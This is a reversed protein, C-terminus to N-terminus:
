RWEFFGIEDLDKKLDGLQEPTLNQMPLRAPGVNMGSLCMTSKNISIFDVGTSSSHKRMTRIFAHSRFQEQKCKAINGKAYEAIIRNYLKGAYNFTSGIFSTTDFTLAPLLQEDVGYLMSYKGGGYVLCRGFDFMNFTSYKVGQFSPISVKQDIVELLREVLMNVGTLSDVHYYFFPVSPAADAVAALYEALVEESSPRFYTTPITAIASAGIEEAHKALAKSDKLSHAGIQVTVTELKGKAAQVWKAAVQKREDTTMSVGEGTTGCIFVSNVGDAKLRDAYEDIIDLNLEGDEKFPTFPAAVLGRIEIKKPPEVKDPGNM